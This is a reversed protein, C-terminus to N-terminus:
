GRLFAGAGGAPLPGKSSAVHAPRPEKRDWEKGALFLDYRGLATRFQDRLFETSSYGSWRLVREKGPTLILLSPYGRVSLQKPIEPTVDRDVVVCNFRKTLELVQTDSFSGKELRTCWM